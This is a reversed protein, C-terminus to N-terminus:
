QFDVHKTQIYKEQMRWQQLYLVLKQTSLIRQSQSNQQDKIKRAQNLRGQVTAVSNSLYERVIKSTLGPCFQFSRLINGRDMHINYTHFSCYITVADSRTTIIYSTFEQNKRETHTKTIIKTTYHTYNEM